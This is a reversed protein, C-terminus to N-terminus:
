INFHTLMLWRVFKMEKKGEVRNQNLFNPNACVCLYVRVTSALSISKILKWHSECILVFGYFFYVCWLFGIFSVVFIIIILQYLLQPPFSKKFTEYKRKRRSFWKAPISHALPLYVKSIQCIYVIQRKFSGM